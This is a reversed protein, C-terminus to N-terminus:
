FYARKRSKEYSNMSDGKNRLTAPLPPEWRFPPSPPLNAWRPTRHSGRSQWVTVFPRLKGKSQSLSVRPVHCPLDQGRLQPLRPDVVKVKITPADQPLWVTFDIKQHHKMGFPDVRQGLFLFYYLPPSKCSPFFPNFPHFITKPPQLRLCTNSPGADADQSDKEFPFAAPLAFHLM